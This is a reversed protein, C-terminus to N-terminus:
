ETLEIEHAECWERLETNVAQKEFEYWEDLLGRSAVLDKYRGYAGPRRFMDEVNAYDDPMRAEVFRFVLERGLDLDNKHPIQVIDKSQWLSDPIEDLDGLESHYYIKGTSKDLVATHEEPRVSSVFDFATQIDRRSVKM